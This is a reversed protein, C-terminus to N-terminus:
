AVSVESKEEKMPHEEDGMEKTQDRAKRELLKVIDEEIPTLARAKLTGFHRMLLAVARDGDGLGEDITHLRSLLKKRERKEKASFPLPALEKPSVDDVATRDYLSLTLTGDSEVSDVIGWYGKRDSLIPDTSHIVCVDGEKLQPIKGDKDSSFLEERTERVLAGSPARGEAKEVAKRWVERQDDPSLTKLPRVQTESTPLIHVKLESNASLNDAINAADIYYYALRKTFDFRDRVYDEFTSYSDRYLRRENIERLARAASLFSEEVQRDLAFFREQEEPSLPVTADSMDSASVEEPVEPALTEREDVIEGTIAEIARAEGLRGIGLPRELDDPDDEMPAFDVVPLAIENKRRRPM